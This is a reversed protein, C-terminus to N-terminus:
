GMVGSSSGPAQPLELPVSVISRLMEAQAPTGIWIPINQQMALWETLSKHGYATGAFKLYFGASPKGLRVALQMTGGYTGVFCDSRAIVASQMALNSSPFADILNTINPGTFGLDLHDDHHLSSGIVVVPTQKALQGVLQGCYHKIEDTFPWTHRQYFRVCTFREPLVVSLPLHPTPVPTFRLSQMLTHLSMKDVYWDHIQDYLVSPHLVHYRRLGLRAAITPYLAAELQSVDRPKVTGHAVTGRLTELRIADQPWYDYLEVSQGAAYWHSAGGRSIAVLRDKAINYKACWQELFPIFYLIESGIEERWPGVLIPRGSKAVYRSWLAFRTM